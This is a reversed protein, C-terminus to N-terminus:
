SNGTATSSSILAKTSIPKIGFARTRDKSLSNNKRSIM